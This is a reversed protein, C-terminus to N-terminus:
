DVIQLFSKGNEKYCSFSFIRIADRFQFFV